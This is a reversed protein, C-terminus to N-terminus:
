MLQIDSVCPSGNSSAATFDVLVKKVHQISELEHKRCRPPINRKGVKLNVHGFVLFSPLIFFPSGIMRLQEKWLNKFRSITKDNATKEVISRAFPEGNPYSVEYWVCSALNDESFGLLRSLNPPLFPLLSQWHLQVVEKMASSSGTRPHLKLNSSVSTNNTHNNTKFSLIPYRTRVTIIRLSPFGKLAAVAEVPIDSLDTLGCEEDVLRSGEGKPKGKLIRGEPPLLPPLLRLAAEAVQWIIRCSIKQGEEYRFGAIAAGYFYNHAEIIEKESNLLPPFFFLLAPM